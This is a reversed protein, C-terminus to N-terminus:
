FRQAEEVLLMPIGEKILYHLKCGMCDLSQSLVNYTLGEKCVPCALIQLLDADVCIAGTPDSKMM